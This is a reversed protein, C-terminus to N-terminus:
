SSAMALQALALAQDGLADEEDHHRVPQHWLVTFVMMATFRVPLDPSPLIKTMGRISETRTRM